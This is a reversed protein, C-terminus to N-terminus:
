LMDTRPLRIVVHAGKDEPKLEISGQHLEVLNKVITLGLGSSNVLGQHLTKGQYFPDFLKNIDEKSLGPGSDQVEILQWPKDQRTSIV